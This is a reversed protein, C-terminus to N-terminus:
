TVVTHSLTDLKHDDLTIKHIFIYVFLFLIFNSDSCANCYSSFCEICMSIDKCIYMCEYM